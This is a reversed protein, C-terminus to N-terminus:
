KLTVPVTCIESYPLIPPAADFYALGGFVSCFVNKGIKEHMTSFDMPEKIITSYGPAFTDSVPQSFFRSVDRKELM